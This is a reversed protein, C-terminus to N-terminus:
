FHMGITMRHTDGLNGFPVFAYDLNFREAKLGLGIGLGVFRNNLQDQGRGFQYGARAALIKQLWYETGLSLYARQDVALWDVDAALALKRDFLRYAAGGKIKFPLPDPGIKTGLNQMSVGATLNEIRTKYLAGFDLAAASASFSDLTTRIFKLSGGLALGEAFARRGYSLNLAFNQNSFTSDAEETDAARREINTVTLYNMGAAVTGMDDKLPGAYGVFGQSQDQFLSSYSATVNKREITGLAGPNWNVANADDALASFAGGMATPRAGIGVKLFQAGTTGVGAARLSGGASLLLLAAPIAVGLTKKM